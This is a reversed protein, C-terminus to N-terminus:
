SCSQLVAPPPHAAVPRSPGHLRQLARPQRRARQPDRFTLLVWGPALSPLHRPSESGEPRRSLERCPQGRSWSAPRWGRGWGMRAWLGVAWNVGGPRPTAGVGMGVETLEFASAEIARAGGLALGVEPHRRPGRLTPGPPSSLAQKRTNAGSGLQLGPASHQGTGAPVSTSPDQTQAPEGPLPM